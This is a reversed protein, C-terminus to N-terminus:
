CFLKSKKKPISNVSLSVLNFLSSVSLLLKQEDRDPVIASIFSMVLIKVLIILINKDIKVNFRVDRNDNFYTLIDQILLSIAPIDNVDIKNDSYITKISKILTNVINNNDKIHIIYEKLLDEEEPKIYGVIYNKYINNIKTYVQVNNPLPISHYGTLKLENVLLIIINTLLSISASM